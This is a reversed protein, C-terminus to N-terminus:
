RPSMKDQNQELFNHFNWPYKIPSEGKKEPHQCSPEGCSRSQSGFTSLVQMQSRLAHFEPRLFVTGPSIIMGHKMSKGPFDCSVM